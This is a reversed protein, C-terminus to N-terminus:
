QAVKEVCSVDFADKSRDGIESIRRSNLAVRRDVCKRLVTCLVQADGVM